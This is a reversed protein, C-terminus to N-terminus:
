FCFKKKKRYFLPLFFDCVTRQKKSPRPVLVNGGREHDTVAVTEVGATTTAAAAGGDDDGTVVRQNDPGAPDTDADVTDPEVDKRKKGTLTTTSEKMEVDDGGGTKEKSNMKELPTNVAFGDVLVSDRESVIKDVVVDDEILQLRGVNGAM